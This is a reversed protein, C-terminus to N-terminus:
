PPLAAALDWRAGNSTWAVQPALAQLFASDHSVVALAGTFSALAEQLAQLAAADLHNTPEDLLLM